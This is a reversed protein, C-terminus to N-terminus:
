YWKELIRVSPSAMKLMMAKVQGHWIATMEQLRTSQQSKNSHILSILQKNHTLNLTPFKPLHNPILETEQNGPAPLQEATFSIFLVPLMQKNLLHQIFAEERQATMPPEWWPVGPMQPQVTRQHTPNAWVNYFRQCGQDKGTLMRTTM